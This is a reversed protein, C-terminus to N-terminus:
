SSDVNDEQEVNAQGPSGGKAYQLLWCIQMRPWMHIRTKKRCKCRGTQCGTKCGCGKKLLAVQMQVKSINDDSDWEIRLSNNDLRWKYPHILLPYTSFASATPRLSPSPSSCLSLVCACFSYTPTGTGQFVIVQVQLLITGISAWHGGVQPKIYPYYFRLRCGTIIIMSLTTSFSVFTRTGCGRCSCTDLSSLKM